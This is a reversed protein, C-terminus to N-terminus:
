DLALRIIHDVFEPLDSGVARLAKPLLSGETLGPVTNTELVYIGRRPHVIFDTRSYHVLGLAEHVKRALAELEKKTEEPFTSPVIEDSKGEYKAEYDFFANRPRIEIPPLAYLEQGRFGEIVACTAERGPIYEEVLIAHGHKAAEVLAPELERHMRVISVGVSSGSGAPKVVMPVPFARFLGEAAKAAGAEVAESAVEKGRPSRIGQMALVKKALIKNMGLASALSGSGTFPINHAELIAQVKGDEGYAGHMANFAVDFYLKADEPRIMRGDIHWICSRDVFVDRPEYKDELFSRIASLVAAGTKLSIEYEASPGGRLVGVKIRNAM